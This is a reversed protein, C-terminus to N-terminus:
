GNGQYNRGRAGAQAQGHTGYLSGGALASFPITGEERDHEPQPPHKFFGKEWLPKLWEPNELRDFFYSHTIINAPIRHTLTTLNRDDPASVRSKELLGELEAIWNLFWSYSAELLVEFLVQAQEWIELIEEKKRIVHIGEKHAFNSLRHYYQPWFLKLREIENEPLDLLGLIVEVQQRKSLKKSTRPMFMMRFLEEVERLCHAVLHAMTKLAEPNAMMWCADRYFSAPAPGVLELLEEYIRQQRPDTFRFSASGFTMRDM